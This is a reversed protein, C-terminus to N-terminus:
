VMMSDRGDALQQRVQKSCLLNLLATRVERTLPFMLLSDSVAAWISSSPAFDEHSATRSAVRPVAAPTASSLPLSHRTDTKSLQSCLQM